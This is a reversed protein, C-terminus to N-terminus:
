EWVSGRYGLERIRLVYLEANEHDVIALIKLNTILTTRLFFREEIVKDNFIMELEDIRIKLFNKM